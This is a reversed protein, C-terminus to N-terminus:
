PSEPYKESITKSTYSLALMSDNEIMQRAEDYSEVIDVPEYKFKAPKEMNSRKNTRIAKAVKRLIVYSM